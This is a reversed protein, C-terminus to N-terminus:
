WGVLGVLSNGVTGGTDGATDTDFLTHEDTETTAAAHTTAEVMAGMGDLPCRDIPM